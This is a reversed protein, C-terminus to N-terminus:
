SPVECIWRSTIARSIKRGRGSYLSEEDVEPVRVRDAVRDLRQPVAEAIVEGIRRELYADRQSRRRRGLDRRAAREDAVDIRDPVRVEEAAQPVGAVGVRREGVHRAVPVVEDVVAARAVWPLELETAQAAVVLGRVPVEARADVVPPGPILRRGVAPV